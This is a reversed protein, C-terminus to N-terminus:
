VRNYKSLSKRLNCVARFLHVKVTAPSCRTIQSIEQVTLGNQHKLVFCIRQKESLNAICSELNRNLERIMVMRAPDFTTDPIQLEKEEGDKIMLSDTFFGSIKKRKRLFDLCCNVAVRYFWTSFQSKERFSRINLYVKVFTDQLVDKADEWNGLMNFAICFGKTKYIQVLEDFASREGLKLRAILEKQKDSNIVM